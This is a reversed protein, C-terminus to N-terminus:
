NQILPLSRVLAQKQFLATLEPSTQRRMGKKVGQIKDLWIQDSEGGQAKEDLYKLLAAVCHKCIGDYSMFAPCECFFGDPEETELDVSIDVEYVKRGSGQVSVIVNEYKGQREIEIDLVHEQEYLDLGRM